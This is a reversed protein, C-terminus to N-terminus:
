GLQNEQLTQIKRLANAASVTLSGNRRASIRMSIYSGLHSKHNRENYSSLCRCLPNRWWWCSSGTWTMEWGLLHCSLIQRKFRFFLSFVNLLYGWFPPAFYFLWFSFNLIESVLDNKLRAMNICINVSTSHAFIFSSAGHVNDSFYLSSQKWFSLVM